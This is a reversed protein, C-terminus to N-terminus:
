SSVREKLKELIGLRSSPPVSLLTQCMRELVESEWGVTVGTEETRSDEFRAKERPLPPERGGGDLYHSM